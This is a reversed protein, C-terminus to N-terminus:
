YKLTLSKLLLVQLRGVMESETYKEYGLGEFMQSMLNYVSMIRPHELLHMAISETILKNIETREDETFKCSNSLAKQELGKIQEVIRDDVAGEFFKSLLSTVLPSADEGSTCPNLTSISIIKRLIM